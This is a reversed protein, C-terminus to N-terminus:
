MKIYVPSSSLYTHTVIHVSIFICEYMFVCMCICIHTHTSCSHTYKTTFVSTSFIRRRWQNDEEAFIYTEWLLWKSESSVSYIELLMSCIHYNFYVLKQIMKQGWFIHSNSGLSPQTAFFEHKWVTTYSFVKSDM